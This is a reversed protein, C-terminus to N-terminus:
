KHYTTETTGVARSLNARALGLIYQARISADDARSLRDQANVVETNDTIGRSFRSRSLDLEQRSLKVNAASTAVEKLAWEVGSVATLVDTQIQSYSGDIAVQAEHVEGEAEEIEGKVRQGTFVPINIMGQVRYTNVNHVPTSGSQGDDALARVTPLNESRVSRVKLEAARLNAQLSLYDARTALAVKLAADREPLGGEGYAANDSVEFDATVHAQLINALNLKTAAYNQEAEQRQQELSNVPQMARIADLEAAVGQRVREQTLSYLENALRIQEAVTDRTTKARLADLYTSVVSLSVVERANNVMLRTSDEQARVSLRSRRDALNLIQQSVFIRADMSGFPGIKGALGNIRIGLGILDTTQLNQRLAIDVHPLLPSRSQTYRGSAKDLAAVADRILASNKLAITLAENLTLNAPLDPRDAATALAATLLLLIFNRKM